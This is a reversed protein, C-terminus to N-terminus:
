AKGDSKKDSQPPTIMGTAKDTFLIGELHDMEHQLLRAFLRSSGREFQKGNEDYARIKIKDFRVVNGYKGPLSLCGEPSTNKSSSLGVVTPNIFVLYTWEQKDGTKQQDIALAESSALFIRKSLGIQPAAIGIGDKASKLARSMSTLEGMLKRSGFESKEVDKAKLRLVDNPAIVINNNMVVSYFVLQNSLL